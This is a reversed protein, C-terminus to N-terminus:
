QEQECIKKLEELRKGMARISGWMNAILQDTNLSKFDEITLSGEASDTPVVAQRTTVSNPFVNEVDQAIWGVKNRRYEPIEHADAWPTSWTYSKLPIELTHELCLEDDAVTIDEKLRSDSFVTWSSTSPKYASDQTLQLQQNNDYYTQANILAASNLLLGDGMPLINPSVGGPILTYSSLKVRSGPRSLLPSSVLLSGSGCAAIITGTWSSWTLGYVVSSVSTTVDVWTTGDVSYSMPTTSATANGAVFTELEPIWIVDSYAKSSTGPATDWSTFSADNTVLVGHAATVVVVKNLKASYKGEVCSAGVPLTGTKWGDNLNYYYVSSGGTPLVIVGNVRPMDVICGITISGPLPSLGNYTVSTNLASTKMWTSTYMISSTAGIPAVAFGKFKSVWFLRAMNAANSMTALTMAATTTTFSYLGTSMAITIVNSNPCTMVDRVLTNAPINTTDHTPKYWNYGDGSVMVQNGTALQTSGCVAVFLGRDNLWRIRGTFSFGPVSYSFWKQMGTALAASSVGGCISQTYDLCVESSPMYTSETDLEVITFPDGSLAANKCYVLIKNMEPIYMIRNTYIDNTRMGLDLWKVDGRKTIVNLSGNDGYVDTTASLYIDGVGPINAIDRNQIYGKLETENYAYRCEWTMGDYSIINEYLYSASGPTSSFSSFTFYGRTSCWRLMDGGIYNLSGPFSASGVSWNVGDSSYVHQKENMISTDEGNIIVAMNLVPSYCIEGLQNNLTGTTIATWTIGDTSTLINSVQTDKVTAIFKGWPAVWRCDIIYTGVTHVYRQTWVVGDASTYIKLNVATVFLGLSQSYEAFYCRATNTLYATELPPLRSNNWSYGDRSWTMKLGYGPLVIVGNGNTGRGYTNNYSFVVPNFVLNSDIYTAGSLNTALMWGRDDLSKLISNGSCITTNSTDPINTWATISDVDSIYYQLNGIILFRRLAANYTVNSLLNTPSLVTEVVLAVRTAYNSASANIGSIVAVKANPGVIVVSYPGTASTNTNYSVAIDTPAFSLTATTAVAYSATLDFFGVKTGAISVAINTDGIAIVKLHNTATVFPDTATTMSNVLDDGYVIKGANIALATTLMVPMSTVNFGLNMSTVVSTNYSTVYYSINAKGAVKRPSEEDTMVYFKSTDNDVACMFGLPASGTSYPSRIGKSLDNPVCFYGANCFLGTYKRTWNILDKSFFLTMKEYRNANTYQNAYVNTVYCDWDPVYCFDTTSTSFSFNVPQEAVCPIPQSALGPLTVQSDAKLVKSYNSKSSTLRTNGLVVESTHLVVNGVLATDSGCVFAKNDELTGPTSTAYALSSAIPQGAVVLAGATIGGVGSINDATLDTLLASGNAVGMPTSISSLESGKSRIAIQNWSLTDIPNLDFMGSNSVSHTSTATVYNLQFSSGDSHRLSLLNAAPTLANCAVISNDLPTTSLQTALYSLSTVQQTQINNNSSSVVSSSLGGTVPNSFGVVGNGGFCFMGLRYCWATTSWGSGSGWMVVSYKGGANSNAITSPLNPNWSVVGSSTTLVFQNLGDLWLCSSVGGSLVSGPIMITPVASLSGLSTGWLLGASGGIVWKGLGWTSCRWTGQVSPTNVSWNVGDVSSAVKNVGTIIITGNSFCVNNWSGTLSAVTPTALTSGSANIVGVTNDGVLVFLKLSPVYAMSSWSVGGSGVISNSGACAVAPTSGYSLLSSGAVVWQQNGYAICTWPTSGSATSQLSYPKSGWWCGNPTVMAITNLGYAVSTCVGSIPTTFVTVESIEKTTCSSTFSTLTDMSSSLVSTNATLLSLKTRYCTTTSLAYLYGTREDYKFSVHGKRSLCLRANKNVSWASGNSSHVITFNETGTNQKATVYMNLPEIFAPKLWTQATIGTGIIYSGSTTIAFNNASSSNSLLCFRAENSFATLGACADVDSTFSVSLTQLKLMHRNSGNATPTSYSLVNGHMINGQITHTYLTTGATSDPHFEVHYNDSIAAYQKTGLSFTTFTTTSWPSVKACIAQTTSTSYSSIIWLNMASSYKVEKTPLNSITLPVGSTFATWTYGGDSSYAASTSKYAYAVLVGNGDSVINTAPVGTNGLLAFSTLDKSFYVYANSNRTAYAVEMIGVVYYGNVGADWTFDWLGYPYFPELDLFQNATYRNISVPAIDALETVLTITSSTLDVRQELMIQGDVLSFGDIWKLMFSGTMDFKGVGEWGYQYLSSNLITIFGPMNSTISYFNIFDTTQLAPSNSSCIIHYGKSPVHLTKIAIANVVTGTARTITTFTSGGNTSKWSKNPSSTWSNNTVWIYGNVDDISIIGPATSPINTYNWNTGDSSSYVYIGTDTFGAVFLKNYFTSWKLQPQMMYDMTNATITGSALYGTWTMTTPDAGSFVGVMYSNSTKTVAALFYQNINGGVYIFNEENIFSYKGTMNLTFSGMNGLSTGIEILKCTLSLSTAPSTAPYQAGFYYNGVKALKVMGNTTIGTGYIAPKFAIRSQFKVVSDLKSYPVYMDKVVSAANGLASVTGASITNVQDFDKSANTTLARNAIGVGAQVNNMVISNSVQVGASPPSVKSGGVWLEQSEVANVSSINRSVDVVIAKSAEAVGDTTISLKSLDDPNINLLSGGIPTTAIDIAGGGAGSGGVAPIAKPPVTKKV